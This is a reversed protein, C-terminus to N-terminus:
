YIFSDLLELSHMKLSTHWIGRRLRVTGIPLFGAALERRFVVMDRCGPYVAVAGGVAKPSRERIM